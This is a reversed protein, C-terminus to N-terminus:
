PVDFRHLVRGEDIDAIVVESGHEVQPGSATVAVVGGYTARITQARIGTKLERGTPELTQGDLETVRGDADAVVVHEGDPTFAVAGLNEHGRGQMALMEGTDIDWLRVTGRTEITVVRRGDPRTAVWTVDIRAGSPAKLETRQGTAVNVVFLRRGDVTVYVATDAGPTLPRAVQTGGAATGPLIERALGHTHELDWVFLAGDVGATYLTAGDAGFHVSTVEGAHGELVHLREGTTADWVAATRDDSVTAVLSGDPSFTAASVPGDHGVLEATLRGTRTDFLGPRAGSRAVVLTRGDPSLARGGSGDFARLQRGTAVDFVFVPGQSSAYLLAGDPSFRLWGPPGTTRLPSPPGTEPLALRNIPYRQDSRWLAIQGFGVVDIAALMDGSPSFVAPADVPGSLSEYTFDLPRLDDAAFLRIASECDTPSPYLWCDSDFELIAVREGDPTYSLAAYGVGDQALTAILDGTSLDYLTVDDVDDNVLARQRDPSIVFSAPRPTRIVAAAQPSRQVVSLLNGRTEPTDRLHVGEVA